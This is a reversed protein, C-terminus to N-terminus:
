KDLGLEDNQKFEKLKYLLKGRSIGLIRAALSQNGQTIEMAEIILKKELEKIKKPLDLHKILKM